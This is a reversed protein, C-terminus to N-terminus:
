LLNLYFDLVSEVSDVNKDTINLLESCRNGISFTHKAHRMMPLDNASDGICVTDFKTLMLRTQLDALANGKNAFRNVYQATSNRDAEWHLRLGSLPPFKIPKGFSTVKFVKETIEEIRSIPTLNLNQVSLPINGLSYNESATHFIFSNDSSSNRVLYYLDESEIKKEYLSKNEKIYHAGDCCIYHIKDKFDPLFRLLENYTRGSSVAFAINKELITHIKDEVSKSVSQTGYPMLTGDFDSVILKVM